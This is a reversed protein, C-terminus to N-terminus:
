PEVMKWVWRRVINAVNAPCTMRSRMLRLPRPSFCCRPGYLPFITHFILHAIAGALENDNGCQSQRDGAHHGARPGRRSGPRRHIHGDFRHGHRCWHHWLRRWRDGRWLRRRDRRSHGRDFRSRSRDRRLGLLILGEGLQRFIDVDGALRALGGVGDALAFGGEARPPAPRAGAQASPLRCASRSCILSSCILSSITSSSFPQAPTEDDFGQIRSLRASCPGGGPPVM